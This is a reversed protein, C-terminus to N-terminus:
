YLSKSPLSNLFDDGCGKLHAEGTDIRVATLVRTGFVALLVAALMSLASLVGLLSGDDANVAAFMACLGVLLLAFAALGFNRRRARHVECLGLAFKTKKSVLTAVIAYILLAGFILLYWGSHHWSYTKPKDMTAPANCKVCRHPLASGTPVILVKGSRSCQSDHQSELSSQPAAYPNTPALKQILPVGYTNTHVHYHVFIVNPFLIEM